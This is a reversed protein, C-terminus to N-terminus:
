ALYRTTEVERYLRRRVMVAWLVVGTVLSTGLVALWEVIYVWMMARDKLKLADAEIQDYRHDAEQLLRLAEPYDQRVYAEGAEKVLEEAGAVEDELRSTRAGFKDVFEFLSALLAKRNQLSYFLQRNLHVLAINQPVPVRSIYMAMSSAFDLYYEWQCFDAGWGPTWDPTFALTRGEGYRWQVILPYSNTMGVATALEQAGDKDTVINLGSFPPASKWPLPKMLEDDPKAVALKYSGGKAIKDAEFEVPLASAVPTGGWGPYNHGGFSEFGGVMALGVGEERVCREMWDIEEPRFNLVCVDSLIISDFSSVLQRYTKPMYQRMYRRIDDISLGANLLVDRCAPILTPQFTPDSKYIYVPNRTNTADGIYLLRIRGTEPDRKGTLGAAWACSASILLALVVVGAWRKM